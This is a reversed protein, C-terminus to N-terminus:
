SRVVRQFTGGPVARVQGALELVTLMASVVDPTLGTSQCLMDPTVPDHAMRKLCLVAPAPLGPATAEATHPLTGEMPLGAPLLDELVHEVSEVLKAGDRILAHCGKALPSHISGPIAFVERGQESAFRATILSGSSLAAEVVLVGLSLGAILRNRRVFSARTAHMGVPYETILLGLQRIKETLQRHGAPYVQDPGTGLVAITAAPARLAGRHAAADIGQALGSVITMGGASLHHAFAEANAEGQASPHRSGVIALAPRELLDLRGHAYLVPPPDAISLLQRPYTTDAWTLMHCGPRDLWELTREVAVPDAPARLADAVRPGVLPEIQQRRASFVQEPSGFASLLARAGQAGLGAVLSLRLWALREDM